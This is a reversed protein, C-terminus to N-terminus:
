SYLNFCVCVCQQVDSVLKKICKVVHVKASHERSRRAGKESKKILNSPVSPKHHVSWDFNSSHLSIQNTSYLVFCTNINSYMNRFIEM